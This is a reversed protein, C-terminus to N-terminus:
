VSTAAQLAGAGVCRCGNYRLLLMYVFFELLACRELGAEQPSFLSYRRFFFYINFFAGRALLLM